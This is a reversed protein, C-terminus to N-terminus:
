QAHKGKMTQYAIWGRVRWLVAGRQHFRFVPVLDAFSYGIVMYVDKLFSVAVQSSNPNTIPFVLIHYPIHLITTVRYFTTQRAWDPMPLGRNELRVASKLMLSINAIFFSWTADLPTMEASKFTCFKTFFVTNRNSHSGFHLILDLPSFSILIRPIWFAASPTSTDALFTPSTADISKAVWFYIVAQVYATLSSNETEM